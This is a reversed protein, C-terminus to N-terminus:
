MFVCGNFGAGEVGCVFVDISVQEEIDCVFVGM